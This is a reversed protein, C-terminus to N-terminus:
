PASVVDPTASAAPLAATSRDPIHELLSRVRLAHPSDAHRQVFREARAIAEPRQHLKLLAGIAIMEREQAFVGDPYVRANDPSSLAQAPHARSSRSRVSFLALEADPDADSSRQYSKHLSARQTRVGHVRSACLHRCLM